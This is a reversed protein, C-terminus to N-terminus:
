AAPTGVALRAGAQLFREMGRPTLPRAFLFGQGSDCQERQLHRMQSRQEVGEGLTEIDLSKGLQVLTHILAASARSSAIGSIFSRDIKLADIPFQRLYALSSYGTGFDDISIRVGLAKLQTLRVTTAHADRMLTTETIELILMAPDIQSRELAARVDDVLTDEDLQRGSVNVAMSLEYGEERWTAAQACARDLVWRGIEVILGSREALPIFADPPVIGRKPHRWRILAEVGTARETKLDFIPQYMLFLQGGSLADALEFELDLRDQAVIQMQAEFLVYRNKGAAKAQYLALDADRVLREADVREGLAIGISATLSVAKGGAAALEMPQALVDITRQAVLEPGSALSTSELLVVFEDGALRGVTDSERMVTSLREAVARLVEDGAAHGFNDNVLKFGDLDVYMIAIPVDHRRARALMQEARDLVLERNPLGTLGDHLARFRLEGTKRAVMRLAGERSRSLVVVLLFILLTVLLSGALVLLAQVSASPGNAEPAGRIVATWTGVAHVPITRELTLRRPSAGAEAAVQVAGGPNRHYLTVALGRHSGLASRILAAPDFSGSVWGLLAARRQAVTAVPAGLRYVAAGAFLTPAAAGPVLTTAFAGSDAAAQLTRRLGTVAGITTAACSDTELTPAIAKTVPIGALAEILCYRSRQGSPIIRYTGGTAARFTPDREVQAAFVHVASAPVAAILAASGSGTLREPGHLVAYWRGFEANSLGPVITAVGRVSSVFDLNGQLSSGLSSAVDAATSRFAANANNQVSSRWALAAAISGGVGLALLLCALLLWRRGKREGKTVARDDGGNVDTAGPESSGM